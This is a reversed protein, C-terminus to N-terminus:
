HAGIKLHAIALLPLVILFNLARWIIVGLSHRKEMDHMYANLKPENSLICTDHLISEHLEDRVEEPLDKYFKNSTDRLKDFSLPKQM